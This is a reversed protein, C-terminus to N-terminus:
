LDDFLEPHTLYLLLTVRQCRNLQASSLLQFARQRKVEFLWMLYRATYAPHRARFLELLEADSKKLYRKM